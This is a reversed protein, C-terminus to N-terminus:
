WSTALLFEEINMWKIGSKHAEFGSDISLVYKPFHDDVVKL